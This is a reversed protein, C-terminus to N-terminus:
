RLSITPSSPSQLEVTDPDPGDSNPDACTEVMADLAGREATTVGLNWRAKVEIWDVAYACWSEERAPRWRDPAQENPNHGSDKSVLTTAPAFVDAVFAARTTEDWQWGGSVHALALPILPESSIENAAVLDIDLYRDHWRGGQARCSRQNSWEVPVDSRNALAVARPDDCGSPEDPWPDEELPTALAPTADPLNALADKAEPGREAARAEQAAKRDAISDLTFSVGAQPEDDDSASAQSILILAAVLLLVSTGIVGSVLLMARIDSNAQRSRRPPETSAYSLTPQDAEVVTISSTATISSTDAKLEAASQQESRTWRTSPRVVSSKPPAAWVGAEDRIWGPLPPTDEPWEHPPRWTGDSDMWWGPGDRRNEKDRLEGRFEM